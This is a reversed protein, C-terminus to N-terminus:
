RCLPEGFTSWKITVVQRILSFAIREIVKMSQETLKLGRYNGRDLAYGMTAALYREIVCQGTAKLWHSRPFKHPISKSVEDADKLWFQSSGM